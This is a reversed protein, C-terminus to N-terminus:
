IQGPRIVPLNLNIPAGFSFPDQLNNIQAIRSWQTADGLYTAAVQFLTTGPQVLVEQTM